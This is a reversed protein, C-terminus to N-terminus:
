VNIGKTTAYSLINEVIIVYATFPIVSFTLAPMSSENWLQQIIKLSCHGIQIM